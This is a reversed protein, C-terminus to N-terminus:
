GPDAALCSAFDPDFESAWDTVRVYIEDATMRSLIYNTTGNIIGMLQEVHNSILPTQIANIIPITGCVSAEYYLGAGTEQAAARLEDWHLSLAMKNATVVSKGDKLARLMMSAAPQDGGLFECVISIEPDGLIDEPDTTLVEEPVEHGGHIAKDLVLAKKVRLSIGTRTELETRFTRILDWVGGGINGLGLLGLVAEKM